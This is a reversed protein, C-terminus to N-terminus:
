SGTAAAPSTSSRRPRCSPGATAPSRSASALPHLHRLTLALASPDGAFPASLHQVLNAQYVDGRSIAARVAEIAAAYGEDDWSREWEGVEYGVTSVRERRRAPRVRCALLPLPCPEPPAAAGDRRISASLGYGLYLDAVLGDRGWFGELYDELAEFAGEPEHLELM